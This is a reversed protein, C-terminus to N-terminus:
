AVVKEKRKAKREQAKQARREKRNVPAPAAEQPQAVPQPEPPPFYFAMLQGNFASTLGYLMPAAMDVGAYELNLGRAWVQAMQFSAIQIADLLDKVSEPTQSQTM